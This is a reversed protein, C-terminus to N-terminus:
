KHNKRYHHNKVSDLLSLLGQRDTVSGVQALSTVEPIGTFYPVSEHLVNFAEESMAPFFPLSVPIKGKKKDNMTLILDIQPVGNIGGYVKAKVNAVDELNYARHGRKIKKEQLNIQINYRSNVFLLILAVIIFVTTSIALHYVPDYSRTGNDPNSPMAGFGLLVSGVASGIYAWKFPLKFKTWM